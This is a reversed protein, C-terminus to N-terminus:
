HVYDKTAICTTFKKGDKLPTIWRVNGSAESEVATLVMGKELPRENAIKSREALVSPAGLMIVCNQVLRDPDRPWDTTKKGQVWRGQITAGISIEVDKRPM